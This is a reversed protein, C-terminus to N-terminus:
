GGGSSADSLIPKSSVCDSASPPLLATETANEIGVNQTFADMECILEQVKGRRWIKVRRQLTRLHNLRYRDPYRAILEIMLELATQDPNRELWELMETWHAQFPDPVTRGRPKESKRYAIKGIVVGRARADARWAVVRRMLTWRQSRHYRGPYQLCLEDFLEGASMNPRGELRRCLMPWVLDLGGVIRRRHESYVPSQGTVLTASESKFHDSFARGTMLHGHRELAPVLIPLLAKLRKGCLRDSAEWMVILAALAAEDYLAPRNRTQRRPERAEANLIRIASKPHYGTVAIFEDL